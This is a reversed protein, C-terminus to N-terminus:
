KKKFKNSKTIVKKFRVIRRARKESELNWLIRTLVSNLKNLIQLMSFM